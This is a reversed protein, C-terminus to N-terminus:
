VIYKDGIVSPFKVVVTKTDEIALFDTSEGKDILIIDGESYIVNNMKVKGQAILTVETAIKHLHREESDGKKYEKLAMEFDKTKFISPSFDGIFWGLTRDSIKATKM